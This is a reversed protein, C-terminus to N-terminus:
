GNMGYAWSFEPNVMVPLGDNGTIEQFIDTTTPIGYASTDHTMADHVGGNVIDQLPYFYGPNAPDYQEGTDPSFPNWTKWTPATARNSGLSQLLSGLAGGIVQAAGSGVSGPMSGGGLPRAAQAPAARARSQMSYFLAGGILVIGLLTSDQKSM